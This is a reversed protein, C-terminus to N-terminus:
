SKRKALNKVFHLFTSQVTPNSDARTFFSMLSTIEFDSLDEPGGKESNEGEIAEQSSLAHL